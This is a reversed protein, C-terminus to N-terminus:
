QSKFNNATLPLSRLSQLIIWIFKCPWSFIDRSSLNDFNVFNTSNEHGKLFKWCSFFTNKFRFKCLHLFGWIWISFKQSPLSPIKQCVNEIWELKRWNSLNRNLRNRKLFCEWFDFLIWLHSTKMLFDVNNSLIM